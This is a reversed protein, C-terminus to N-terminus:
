VEPIPLLREVLQVVVVAWDVNKLIPWGRGREDNIKPRKLCDDNCNKCCINTFFHGDLVHHQSEFGCGESCSDGGMVMLGPARGFSMKNAM